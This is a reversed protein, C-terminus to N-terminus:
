GLNSLAFAIRAFEELSLTEPRRSFDIGTEHSVQAIQSKSFGLAQCDSLSNLLTKRRQGFACHVVAFFLEDNPVDVPPKARPILRVLASSVDPPPFFVNKSAYAVVEIESYFQVFISMSGYDKTGPSARLRDAVEKQVMLVIVEIQSRALLLETIIPSTIYYPLNGVVKVKALGFYNNLFQPLNLGLIDAHVVQVNPRDALVESLINLLAQDIEVAVVRAGREAMGLTVAGAGAGIELINDGERVDAADLIKNLINWDVLFNQGFRKKIHFSYRQFLEALQTPSTLEISRMM